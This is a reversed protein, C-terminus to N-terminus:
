FEGLARRLVNTAGVVDANEEFECKVCKFREQTKRNAKDKHDCKPCIQSTHHPAVSKVVTGTRDAKMKLKLQFRYPATNLMERNLGAKANVNKGHEEEDGKASKTMNKIKLDEVAVIEKKGLDSVVINERTTRLEVMKAQTRKISSRLKKAVASREQYVFSINKKCDNCFKNIGKFNGDFRPKICCKPCQKTHVAAARILHKSLKHQLDAVRKAHQKLQKAYLHVHNRKIDGAMTIVQTIGADVGVKGTPQRPKIYGRRNAAYYIEEDVELTFSIFWKDNKQSVHVTCIKNANFFWAPLDHSAIKLSGLGNPLKVGNGNVSSLKIQSDRYFVSKTGNRKNKFRPFGRKKDMPIKKDFKDKYHKELANKLRGSIANELTSAPVNGTWENGGYGHPEKKSRTKSGLSYKSANFWSIIDNLQYMPNLNKPKPTKPNAEVDALWQKYEDHNKEDINKIYGLVYNWARNNARMYYAFHAQQKKNPYCRTKAAINFKVKM